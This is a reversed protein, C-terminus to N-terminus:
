GAMDLWLGHATHVARILVGGCHICRLVAGM